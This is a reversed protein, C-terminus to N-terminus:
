FALLMRKVQHEPWMLGKFDGSAQRQKNLCKYRTGTLPYHQSATHKVAVALGAPAKRGSGELM